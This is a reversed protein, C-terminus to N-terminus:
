VGTFAGGVALYVPGWEDVENRDVAIAYLFMALASGGGIAAGLLVGDKTSDRPRDLGRLDVLPITVHLGGTARAKGRPSELVLELTNDDVRVLRGTVSEGAANVATVVDGVTLERRLEDLTNVQSQAAATDGGVLDLGVVAVVALLNTATNGFRM